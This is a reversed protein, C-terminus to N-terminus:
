NGSTDNLTLTRKTITVTVYCGASLNTNSSITINPFTACTGDTLWANTEKTLMATHCDSGACGDANNGTIKSTSTISGNTKVSGYVKTGGGFLDVVAQSQVLCNSTIPNMSWTTGNYSFARSKCWSSGGITVGNHGYFGATNGSPTGTGITPEEIGASGNNTYEGNVYSYLHTGRDPDNGTIADIRFIPNYDSDENSVASILVIRINVGGNDANPFLNKFEDVINKTLLPDDNHVVLNPFNTTGFIPSGSVETENNSLIISENPNSVSKVQTPVSFNVGDNTGVVPSGTTFRSGFSSHKFLPTLYKSNDQFWATVQGISREVDYYRVNNLNVVNQLKANNTSSRLLGSIIVLSLSFLALITLLAYGSEKKFKSCNKM